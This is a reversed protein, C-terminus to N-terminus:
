STEQEICLIRDGEQTGSAALAGVPLELAVRASRHFRTRSGPALAPYLAVVSGDRGLFAVDISFRMGFMHVARCPDLLLGEGEELAARSSLGRLRLWWRNALAIRTGLVTGRGTNEARVLKM